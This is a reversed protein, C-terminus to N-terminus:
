NVDDNRVSIGRTSTHTSDKIAAAADSMLGMEHLTCYVLSISVAPQTYASCRCSQQDIFIITLLSYAVSTTSSHSPVGFQSPVCFFHRGGWGSIRACLCAHAVNICLSVFSTGGVEDVSAHVYAAMPSMLIFPCWVTFPCLFLAEGRMWQHTCM